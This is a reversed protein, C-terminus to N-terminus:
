QNYLRRGERMVQILEPASMKKDLRKTFQSNYIRYKGHRDLVTIENKQYIAFIQSDGIYIWSEKSPELLGRGASYDAMPNECGLVQTMLTPVIGYHSTRYKVKAAPSNPQHIILPVKVSAPSLDRKVADSNTNFIQGHTGTILVITDNDVQTLIQQLQKDIFNLSQRYQNFLVKEAAKLEFPPKVTEIGLFGIPTDYEKPATLNVLAFWPATQASPLAKSQLWSTLNAVTALDAAAGGDLRSSANLEFGDFMSNILANQRIVEPMFLGLQYGSKLLEDTMVPRKNHFEQRDSYSSQLGYLLSFMGTRFQNGGSYHQSFEQNQKQYRTLFPMTKDDIMDARLSDISILLINSQSAISCQLAAIPYTLKASGSTVKDSLLPDLDKTGEIGHSEMFSRATAPYSLPYADDFRTIDTIDAADAWIHTLHSSVFCLGIFLVVKHGFQKKQIKEIRKWIFNAATLEIIVIGIPTVIYSTGHLLANLDAWALDFAFPSLHIGYDDYIVTDYLLICLSLSAVIAALGRLIKSYPLLLTVPFLFVLYVIFALFSFQSLTNVVLYGWGLVTEPYGLSSLYRAGVIMALLGNFFAFWHGWNILRSVKDRSMQEKRESM